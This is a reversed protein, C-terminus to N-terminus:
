RLGPERLGAEDEAEVAFRALTRVLADRLARRIFLADAILGFPGYRTLTYELSLEVESGGGAAVARLSQRGVLADEFVMTAFGGPAGSVVKETVKGRGGPTSEWVVRAEAAPWGPSRELLRAFGEIFTPWRATDTWLKLVDDPPLVVSRRAVATRM